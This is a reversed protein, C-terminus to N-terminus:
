EYEVLKEISRKNKLETVKTYYDNSAQFYLDLIERYMEALNEIKIPNNNDDILIASEDKKLLVDLFNILVNNITFQGGNKFYILSEFFKEKFLRRQDEITRTYNAFELAKALKEDM